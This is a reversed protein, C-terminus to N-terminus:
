VISKLELCRGNFSTSEGMKLTKLILIIPAQESVAFFLQDDMRIKGAGISIYFNGMTTFVLSGKKLTTHIEIESISKLINKLEIAESLKQAHKDREIQMMARGTEYKDGASSKTENNAAEQAENMAQTSLQIKQEVYDMCANFLYTKLEIPKM